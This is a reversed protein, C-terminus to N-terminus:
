VSQDKFLNGDSWFWKILVAGSKFPQRGSERRAYSSFLCCFVRSVDFDNLFFFECLPPRQRCLVRRTGRIFLVVDKALWVRRQHIDNDDVSSFWSWGITKSDFVLASVFASCSGVLSPHSSLLLHSSSHPTNSEDIRPFSIDGRGDDVWKKRTM